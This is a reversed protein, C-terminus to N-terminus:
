VPRDGTARPMRPQISGPRLGSENPRVILRVKGRATVELQDMQVRHLRVGINLRERITAAVANLEQAAAGPSSSVYRLEVQDDQHQVLQYARIQTLNRFMGAFFISPLEDGAPNRLRDQSRGELRHLVSLSRGCPCRENSIVGIDGIEYRIFPMAYNDLDTVLIRGPRNRVPLGDEDVTEVIVHEDSIHKTGQECEFAIASVENSGYYDFVRAAFWSEIKARQSPLLMEGTTFVIPVCVDGATMQEGILQLISPYGSLYEARVTQVAEAVSAPTTSEVPFVALSRFRGLRQRLRGKLSVSGMGKVSVFPAGPELGAWTQARLLLAASHLVTRPGKKVQLPEGTSGGTSANAAFLTSTGGCYIRDGSQRVFSKTMIPLRQLLAAPENTPHPLELGSALEMYAPARAGAFRLLQSLRKIQYAATTERSWHQSDLLRPLVRAFSIAGVPDAVFLRISSLV